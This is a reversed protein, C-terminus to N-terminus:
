NYINWLHLNNHEVGNNNKGNEKHRGAILSPFDFIMGKELVKEKLNQLVHSEYSKIQQLTIGHKLPEKFQYIKKKYEDIGNEIHLLKLIIKVREWIDHRLRLLAGFVYAVGSRHM